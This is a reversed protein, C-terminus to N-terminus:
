RSTWMLLPPLTEVAAVQDRREFASPARRRQRPPVAPQRAAPLQRLRGRGRRRRARRRRRLCRLCRRRCRLASRGAPLSTGSDCSPTGVEYRWSRAGMSSGPNERACAPGETRVSRARARRRGRRLYGARAELLADRVLVDLREDLLREAARHGRRTSGAAARARARRQGLHRRDIERLEARDLSSGSVRMWRMEPGRRCALQTLMGCTVCNSSASM